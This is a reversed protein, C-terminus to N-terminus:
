FVDPGQLNRRPRTQVQFNLSNAVPPECVWRPSPPLPPPEPGNDSFLVGSVTAGPYVTTLWDPSGVLNQAYQSAVGGTGVPYIILTGVDVGGSDHLRRGSVVWDSINTITAM